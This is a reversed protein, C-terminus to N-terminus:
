NAGCRPACDALDVPAGMAVLVDRPGAYPERGHAMRVNDLLLLDGDHWPERVTVRQYARNLLEVTDAGVRQGDGRETDFPLGAPGQLALIYERVDPDLTWANLFAVQNFWTRQGTVPHAIVAPRRQRTCLSGDDAWRFEVEHSRCYEEAEVHSAGLAQEVSAGLVPTYRRRLTWGHEAFGAVLEDPLEALVAGCDALTVAGGSAPATACALLMLGPFRVAYSLENHACMPEGAPWLSSSYVGGPHAVRPAFGERETMPPGILLGAATAVEAPGGPPLGRILVAGHDAVVARLAGARETLWAEPGGAGDHAWVVPPAGVTSILELEDALLSM